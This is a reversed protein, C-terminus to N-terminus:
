LGLETGNELLILLGTMKSEMFLRVPSNEPLSGIRLALADLRSKKDDPSVSGQFLPYVLNGMWQSLLNLDEPREELQGELERLREDTGTFFTWGGGQPPCSDESM